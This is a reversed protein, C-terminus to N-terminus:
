HYERFKAEDKLYEYENVILDRVVRIRSEDYCFTNDPVERDRLMTKVLSITEGVPFNVGERHIVLGVLEAIVMHDIVFPTLGQNRNRINLEGNSVYVNSYANFWRGILNM